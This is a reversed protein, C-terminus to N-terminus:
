PKNYGQEVYRMIPFGPCNDGTPEGIDDLSVGQTVAEQKLKEIKKDINDRASKSLKHCQTTGSYDFVCYRCQASSMIGGNANCVFPLCVDEVQKESLM